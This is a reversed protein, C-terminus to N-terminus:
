FDSYEKVVKFLSSSSFERILCPHATPLVFLNAFCSKSKMFDIQSDDILNQKGLHVRINGAIMSEFLKAAASALSFPRYNPM